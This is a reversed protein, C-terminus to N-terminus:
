TANFDDPVKKYAYIDNRPDEGTCMYYNIGMKGPMIMFTIDYILWLLLITLSCFRAFFVEDLGIYSKYVFIYLYRFIIIANLHLLSGMTPGNRFFSQFWCISSPLPGFIMRFVEILEIVSLSILGNYLVGNEM